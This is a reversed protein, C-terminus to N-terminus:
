REKAKATRRAQIPQVKRTEIWRGLDDADFRIYKGVKIYTIRHEEILRRIFRESVNLHQAAGDIDLLPSAM